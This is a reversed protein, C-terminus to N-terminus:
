ANLLHTEEFYTNLLHEDGLYTHPVHADENKPPVCQYHTKSATIYISVFKQVTVHQAVTSSITTNQDINPSHM